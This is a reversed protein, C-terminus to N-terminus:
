CLTQEFIAWIMDYFIANQINPFTKGCIDLDWLIEMGILITIKLCHFIRCRGRPMASKKCWHDFLWSKAVLSCIHLERRQKKLRRGGNGTIKGRFAGSSTGPHGLWSQNRTYLILDDSFFCTGVSWYLCICYMCVHTLNRLYLLYPEHVGPVNIYYIITVYATMYWMDTWIITWGEAMFALMFSSWRSLQHFSDM